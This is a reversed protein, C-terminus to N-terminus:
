TFSNKIFEKERHREVNYERLNEVFFGLSLALFLILFENVYHKWGRGSAKHLEHAHTEM